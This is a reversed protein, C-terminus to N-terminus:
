FKDQFYSAPLRRAVQLPLGTNLTTHPDWNLIRTNEEIVVLYDGAETEILEALVPLDLVVITYIMGLARTLPCYVNDDLIEWPNPWEQYYDWHLYYPRWPTQHWWANIKELAVETNLAQCETRLIKWAELRQEFTKAWM